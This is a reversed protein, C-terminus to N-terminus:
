RTATMSPCLTLATDLGGGMDSLYLRAGTVSALERSGSVFDAHHTDRHRPQYAVRGPARGRFVTNRRPHTLWWRRGTGHLWGHVIGAGAGQRLYKLLM